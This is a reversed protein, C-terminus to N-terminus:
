RNSVFFKLIINISTIDNTAIMRNIARSGWKMIPQAAEDLIRLKQPQVNKDKMIQLREPNKSYTNPVHPINVRIMKMANSIMANCGDSAYLRFSIKSSSFNRAFILSSCYLSFSFSLAGSM